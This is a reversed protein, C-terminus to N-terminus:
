FHLNQFREGGDGIPWQIRGGACDREWVIQDFNIGAQLEPGRGKIVVLEMKFGQSGSAYM